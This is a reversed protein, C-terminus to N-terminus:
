LFVLRNCVRSCVMVNLSVFFISCGNSLCILFYHKSVIHNWKTVVPVFQVNNNIEFVLITSNKEFLHTSWRVVFTLLVRVSVNPMLVVVVLVVLLGCWVSLDVPFSWSMCWCSDFEVFRIDGQEADRENELACYETSVSRLASCETVLWADDATTGWRDVLTVIMRRSFWCCNQTSQVSTWLPTIWLM